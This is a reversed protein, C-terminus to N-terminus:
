RFAPIVGQAWARMFRAKEKFHFSMWFQRAGAAIAAELKRICDQPTGAVAFRDSLYDLLGLDKILQGNSGEPKDHHGSNYREGLTKVKSLLHPPLHKGELTFRSLQSGASALTMAIEDIAQEKTDAINAQPIWWMDVDDINRGARACGVKVQNITDRIVEPALGTNIVVGDGIEGALQLTKPGSAAIYIPVRGRFWTLRCPSGDYVSNGTALLERISKIYGALQALTAPRVGINDVSSDGTGVGIMTRGPAIEELTAAGGAAVAPHRSKPNIVRSGFRISKTSIAVLAECVHVDRFLSQSDGIGAIDFGLQEALQVLDSLELAQDPLFNVDFRIPKQKDNM